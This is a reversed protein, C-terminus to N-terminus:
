KGKGSKGNDKSPKSKGAAKDQHSEHHKQAKGPRLDVRDASEARRTGSSANGAAPDQSGAARMAPPQSTPPHAALVATRERGPAAVSRTSEADEILLALAVGSLAGVLAGMVVLLHGLRRLSVEM